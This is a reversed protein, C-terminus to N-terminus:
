IDEDIVCHVTIKQLELTNVAKMFRNNYFDNNVLVNNITVRRLTRNEKLQEIFEDIVSDDEQSKWSINKVKLHKVQTFKKLGIKVVEELVRFDNCIHLKELSHRNIELIKKIIKSHSEHSLEYRFEILKSLYSLIIKELRSWLIPPFDYFFLKVKSVELLSLFKKAKSLFDVFIM